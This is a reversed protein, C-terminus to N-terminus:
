SIKVMEFLKLIYRGVKKFPRLLCHLIALFLIGRFLFLNSSCLLGIKLGSPNGIIDSITTCLPLLIFQSVLFYGHDTHYVSYQLILPVTCVPKNSFPVLKFKGGLDNEGNDCCGHINYLPPFFLGALINHLILFDATARHFGQISFHNIGWKLTM